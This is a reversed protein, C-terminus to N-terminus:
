AAKTADDSPRLQPFHCTVLTGRGAESDITVHGGHLEVLAKVLSLGLGAGRHKTGGSRTEFRDFVHPLLDPPIGRGEDRVEVILDNQYLRAAVNITQGKDSFGIANSLLNFLIQRIRKEDLSVVGIAPDISINLDLGLERMQDKLGMVAADILPRLEVEGLSLDIEGRDFSALDLIDDIIAMLAHSSQLIHGAYDSQKNTLPGATGSALLETFGIVNTLPSRLQYSVHHVFNERLKAAREL